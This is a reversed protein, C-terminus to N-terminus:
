PIKSRRAERCLAIAARLASSAPASPDYALGVRRVLSLRDIPRIVVEEADRISGVPVLAVGVGAAAMALAWEENQARAVIDPAVKHRALASSVEDHWECHCREIMKIGNLDALAIKTKLTLPHGQPLALVYKENWLPVFRDGKRLLRNSVIRAEAPEELTVLRLTLREVRQMLLKLFSAIRGANMAPMIALNLSVPQAPEHFMNTLAKIEGLLKVAQAYFEKAEPTPTVGQRHRAFLRAGIQNELQAIAASVSPQAVFLRKSAASISGEEYVAAFYRLQRNDM